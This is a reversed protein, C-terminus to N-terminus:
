GVWHGRAWRRWSKGRTTGSLRSGLPARRPPPSEHHRRPSPRHVRARPRWKKRKCSLRAPSIRTRKSVLGGHCYRCTQTCIWTRSSKRPRRRRLLSLRFQPSSTAPPQQYSIDTIHNRPSSASTSICKRQGSCPCFRQILCGAPDRGPKLGLAEQERRDPETEPRRFGHGAIGPDSGLATAYLRPHSSRSGCIKNTSAFRLGLTSYLCAILFCQHDAQHSVAPPRGSM